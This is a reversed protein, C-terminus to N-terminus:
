PTYQQYFQCCFSSFSSFYSETTFKPCRPNNKFILNVFIERHSAQPVWQLAIRVVSNPKYHSVRSLRKWRWTEFTERIPKVDAKTHRRSNSMMNSWKM